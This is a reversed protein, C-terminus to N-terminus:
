PTSLRRKIRELEENLRAVRERLQQIEVDKETITADAARTIPVTTRVTPPGAPVSAVTAPAPLGALQRLVRAEARYWHVSDSQLYVDLMADGVIAVRQDAAAHLLGVLRDRSITEIM